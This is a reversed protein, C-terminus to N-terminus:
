KKVKNTDSNQVIYITGSYTPSFTFNGKIKKVSELDLSQVKVAPPCPPIVIEPCNCIPDKTLKFGTFLGGLFIVVSIIVPLIAKKILM